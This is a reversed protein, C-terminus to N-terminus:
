EEEDDAPCDDRWDHYGFCRDCFPAEEIPEPAQHHSEEDDYGYADACDPCIPGAADAVIAPQGCGRCAGM